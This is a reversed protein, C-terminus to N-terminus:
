WWCRGRVFLRGLVFAGSTGSGRPTGRVSVTPRPSRLYLRSCVSASASLIFLSRTGRRSKKHTQHARGGDSAQEARGSTFSSVGASSSCISYSREGQDGVSVETKLIGLSNTAGLATSSQTVPIAWKSRRCRNTRFPQIRQTSKEADCARWGKKTVHSTTRRPKAPNRHHAQPCRRLAGGLPVRPNVGRAPPLM